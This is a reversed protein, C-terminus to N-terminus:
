KKKHNEKVFAELAATMSPFEPLPAECNLELGADKIAKATLTGFCGIYRDGQVFNPSNKFLSAVGAPTFFIMMDYKALEDASIETSVTRYMVAKTFSAKKDELVATIDDNHVDSVPVIFKEKNHKTIATALGDMKGTTSFFIKRKRYVIYKQLYLAVSESICFYKMTEPMTIRLEECIAFFHDVAIKATFVVATYESINIRQQRFEKSDLGEVKIFPRFDLNLDYKESIDYYPSKESTPKPQSVLINKVKLAM